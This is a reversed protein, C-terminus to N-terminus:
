KQKRRRTGSTKLHDGCWSIVLKRDGDAPDEVVGFYVRLMDPPKTGYKVHPTADVEVGNWLDQRLQMLAKDRKTQKGETFTLEFGTRSQFERMVADTGLKKGILLDYLDTAMAHLVRWATDPDSLEYDGSSRIARDTFALTDAFVIKALDVVDELSGPLQRLNRLVEVTKQDRGREIEALRAREDAAQVLGKQVEVQNTLKEREECVNLYSEQLATEEAERQKLNEELHKNEAELAEAWDEASDYGSKAQELKRSLEIQRLADIDPANDGIYLHSRRLLSGVLMEEVKEVGHEEIDSRNVFRHRRADFDSDAVVGPQYVRIMGRDCRLKRPLLYELEQDLDASGAVWIDVVGALRRSLRGVDLLPLSSRQPLSMYMLPCRRDSSLILEELRNGQGVHLVRSRETLECCGAMVSVRKMRLIQRVLFPTTIAPPEPEYGVFGLRLRHSLRLIFHYGGEAIKTLAIDTRWIRPPFDQCPHVFRVAWFDPTGEGNGVNPVSHTEVKVQRNTPSDFVGGNYFWRKNFSTSGVECKGELWTRIQRLLEHFCSLEKAKPLVAFSCQFQLQSPQADIM